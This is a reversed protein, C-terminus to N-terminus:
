YSSHLGLSDVETKQNYTVLNQAISGNEDFVEDMEYFAQIEGNEQWNLKFEIQEKTKYAISNNPM